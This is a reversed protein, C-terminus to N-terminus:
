PIDRRKHRFVQTSSNSIARLLPNLEQVPTSEIQTL